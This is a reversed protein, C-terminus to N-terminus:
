ELAPPLTPTGDVDSPRRPEENGHKYLLQFYNTGEFPPRGTIMEYLIVGLAYIDARHDVDPEGRAQEPAMYLPTGVLQGTRTVRVQESEASKIKSIGFDLVKVFDRQEREVLFINDPKLDRHVIDWQ